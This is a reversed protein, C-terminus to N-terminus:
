RRPEADEPFLKAELAQEGAAILTAARARLEERLLEREWEYLVLISQQEESSALRDAIADLARGRLYGQPLPDRNIPAAM